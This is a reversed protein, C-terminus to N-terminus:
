KWAPGAEECRPKGCGVGWADPASVIHACLDSYMSSRIM